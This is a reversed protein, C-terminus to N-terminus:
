RPTFATVRLCKVKVGGPLTEGIGSAVGSQGDEPPSSESPQVSRQLGDCTSPCLSEPPTGLPGPPWLPPPLFSRKVLVVSTVM